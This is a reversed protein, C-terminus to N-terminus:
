STYPIAQSTAAACRNRAAFDARMGRLIAFNGKFKGTLLSDAHLRTRDASRRGGVLGASLSKAGQLPLFAQWHHAKQSKTFLRWVGFKAVEPTFYGITEPLYKFFERKGSVAAPSRTEIRV